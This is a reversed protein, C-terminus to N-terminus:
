EEREVASPFPSAVMFSVFAGAVGALFIAGMWLHITWEIGGTLQLALFYLSYFVAPVAFAFLRLQPLRLEAPKLWRLLLDALLGAALAAPLLHYTDEFVSMLACNLAILLTLAGFPLSWRRALLLIMGILLASQLMIGSIGLARIFGSPRSVFGRAAIPLAIPHSYETFFTLLSLTLTASLLLPGLTRWSHTARAPMRSWAARLPGGVMLVGSSALLLHTPSLLAELNVEVGFTQHWVMDLGGGLLFLIAGVLSLGYGAPLLRPWAYGRTLNRAYTTSLLLIIAFAGSYLVAHWPTFFVDDIKGHSHAWGDLYLGGVMWASLITFAWDFLLGGDPRERAAPRTVDSRISDATTAMLKEESRWHGLILM